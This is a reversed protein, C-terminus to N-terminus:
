VLSTLATTVAHDMLVANSRVVAALPLSVTDLSYLIQSSPRVCVCVCLVHTHTSCPSPLMRPTSSHIRAYAGLRVVFSKLEDAPQHWTPRDPLEMDDGHNSTNIWTPVGVQMKLTRLTM